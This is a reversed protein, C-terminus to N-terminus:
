SASVDRPNDASLCLNQFSLSICNRPKRIKILKCFAGLREEMNDYYLPIGTSFKQPFPKLDICNQLLAVVCLAAVFDPFLSVVHASEPHVRIWYKQPM